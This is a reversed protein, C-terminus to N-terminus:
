MRLLVLVNKFYWTAGGQHRFDKQLEKFEPAIEAWKGNLLVAAL